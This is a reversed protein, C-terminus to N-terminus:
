PCWPDSHEVWVGSAQERETACASEGRNRHPQHSEYTRSHIPAGNTNGSHLYVASQQTRHAGRVTARMSPATHPARFGGCFIPISPPALPVIPATKHRPVTYGSCHWRRSYICVDSRLSRVVAVSRVSVFVCLWATYMCARSNRTHTHTPRLCVARIHMCRRVSRRAFLAQVGVCLMLSPFCYTGSPERQYAASGFGGYSYM